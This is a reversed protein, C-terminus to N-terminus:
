ITSYVLIEENGDFQCFAKSDEEKLRNNIGLPCDSENQTPSM